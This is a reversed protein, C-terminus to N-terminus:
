QRKWVKRYITRMINYLGIIKLFKILKERLLFYMQRVKIKEYYIIQKVKSFIEKLKNNEILAEMMECDNIDKPETRNRKM